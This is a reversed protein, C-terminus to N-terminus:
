ELCKLVLNQVNEAFVTRLDTGNPLEPGGNHFLTTVEVVEYGHNNALAYADDVTKGYSRSACVIVECNANICAQIWKKQDSGPDGQNEIGVIHEEGDNGKITGIVYSDYDDSHWVKIFSTYPMKMALSKVSQSKGRESAGWVLIMTKM